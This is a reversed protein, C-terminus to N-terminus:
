SYAPLISSEEENLEIGAYYRRTFFLIAFSWKSSLIYTIKEVGQGLQVTHKSVNNINPLLFVHYNEMGACEISCKTYKNKISPNFAVSHM